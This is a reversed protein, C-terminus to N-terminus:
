RPRSRRPRGVGDEGCGRRTRAPSSRCRPSCGAVAGRHPRPRGDAGVEPREVGSSRSSRTSSSTSTRGPTTRRARARRVAALARDARGAAPAAVGRHGAGPHPVLPGRLRPPLDAGQRGQGRDRRAGPGLAGGAARVGRAARDLVAAAARDHARLRRERGRGAARQPLRAGRPLVRARGRGAGALGRAAGARRSPDAAAARALLLRAQGLLDLAINALAIDDELDPAHSCWERLRHSLVLADDGLAPLVGRARGPRPRRARDHRRRRAPGRLRHRVGVAVHRHRAPRRLRQRARREPRTSSHSM